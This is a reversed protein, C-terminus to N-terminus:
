IIDMNTQQEEELNLRMNACSTFAFSELAYNIRTTSVSSLLLNELSFCVAQEGCIAVTFITSVTFLIQGVARRQEQWSGARHMLWAALYSSKFCLVM